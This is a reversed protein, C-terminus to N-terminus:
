FPTAIRFPKRYLKNQDYNHDYEMQKWVIDGPRVGETLFTKYPYLQIGWSNLIRNYLFFSVFIMLLAYYKMDESEVTCIYTITAIVGIMYYWSLRGGNMNRAFFLLIACFMLAVNLLVINLPRDPIDDYKLFILLSFFAAEVLYEIRFGSETSVTEVRGADVEGYAAFLSSPLSTLGLIFVIAMFVMVDRRDFKRVPIFYMPLFILASNHFTYAIFMILLFMKLNRKAIYQIGLWAVTAGMAQRLYTFTFFFWLGLFLMVAFPYSNCYKYISVFLLTYIVFTTIMIFIYRNETICGVLVNYFGYGKESSYLDFINAITVPWKHNINDAVGDFLEGYIYRDYGGLMDSLGVFLALFIMMFILIQGEKSPDDQKLMIFYLVVVAFFIIYYAFM